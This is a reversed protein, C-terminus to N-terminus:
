LRCKMSMDAKVQSTVLARITANEEATLGIRSSEGNMLAERVMMSIKFNTLSEESSLTSQSLMLSKRKKISKLLDDAQAQQASTLKKLSPIM